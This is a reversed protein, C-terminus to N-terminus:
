VAEVAHELHLNAGGRDGGRGRDHGGEARDGGLHHVAVEIPEVAVPVGGAEGGDRSGAEGRGGEPELAAGGEEAEIQGAVAHVVVPVAAVRDGLIEGDGGLGLGGFLGLRAVDSRLAGIASGLGSPREGLRPRFNEVKSSWFKLQNLSSSVMAPAKVGPLMM